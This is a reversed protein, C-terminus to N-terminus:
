EINGDKLRIIRNTMEAIDEEHTVIIVTIGQKNVNKFIEMVDHSTQTDLAGTPEDALIVKPESILARAIAVRQQQGGSMQTPLHDAWEKLGVKELYELAKM